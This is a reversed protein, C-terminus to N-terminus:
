TVSRIEKVLISWAAILEEMGAGRDFQILGQSIPFWDGVARQVLDDPVNVALIAPGGEDPFQTAKGRAYDEPLGFHFPGVEVNMSFGEDSDQGGPEQFQPDPGHQLIREARVRTTGHLLIM